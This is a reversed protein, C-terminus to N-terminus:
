APRAAWPAIFLGDGKQIVVGMEILQALVALVVPRPFYDVRMPTVWDWGRPDKFVGVDLTLTLLADSTAVGSPNGCLLIAISEACEKETWHQYGAPLGVHVVRYGDPVEQLVGDAVMEDIAYFIVDEFFTTKTQALQLIDMSSLTPQECASLLRYLTTKCNTIGEDWDEDTISSM